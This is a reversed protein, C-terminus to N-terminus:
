KFFWRHSNIKKQNKEKLCFILQIPVSEKGPPKVKHDSGIHVRRDTLTSLISVSRLISM